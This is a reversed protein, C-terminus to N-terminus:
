VRQVGVSRTQIDKDAVGAQRLATVIERIDEVNAATAARATAAWNNVGAEFRAQDPRTEAEGTASVSLLTEDRDVGRPDYPAEGCAVLLLAGSLAVFKQFPM